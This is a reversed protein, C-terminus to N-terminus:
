VVFHQRPRESRPRLPQAVPRSPMPAPAPPPLLLQDLWARQEALVMRVAVPSVSPKLAASRPRQPATSNLWFAGLWLSAVGAWALPSPWFLDRWRFPEPPASAPPRASPLARLFKERWAAPPPELPQRAMRQEFTLKFFLEQLLDRTDEPCRTLNSLFGFLAPAHADYLRELELAATM